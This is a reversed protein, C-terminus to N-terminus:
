IGINPNNVREVDPLPFCVQSGYAQNAADLTGAAPALTLGFRKFDQLRHGELFFERRREEIVQNIVDQQTQGAVSHQPMGARTNRANNIATEAGPLDNARARTEALILQAEAYKAIIFTSNLAPYKNATWIASGPATGARNANTVAVRPDAVGGVTLGRYTPDVTSFSSNNIHFFVTNTRRANTADNSTTVNLTTPVLAADTAANAYDAQNLYARARGLLAFDRTTADVPAAMGAYVVASDFRAKAEAFLQAPTMEPGVNIAASCMGEGLLLISFGAYVYAQGLLRERNVNPPLEGQTWVKLRAILTDASGRAVSLTTYIPPQQNNGCTATGYAQSTRVRRGDYDYNDSGAIANALEDGILASGVVFRAYACEFDAIAGNLLLQANTPVYLKGAELTGPNSQELTTIDRCAVAAAGAASLLLMASILKRM